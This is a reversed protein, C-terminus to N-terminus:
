FDLTESLEEEEGQTSGSGEREGRRSPVILKMHSQKNIDGKCWVNIKRSQKVGADRGERTKLYLM